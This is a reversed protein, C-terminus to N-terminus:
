NTNKGTISNAGNRSKITLLIKILYKLSNVAIEIIYNYNNKKILLFVKM